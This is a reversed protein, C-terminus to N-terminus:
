GKKLIIPKSIAAQYAEEVAAIPGDIVKKLDEESIPQNDACHMAVIGYKNKPVPHTCNQIQNTKM